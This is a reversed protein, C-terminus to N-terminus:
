LPNPGPLFQSQPNQTILPDVPAKETWKKQRTAEQASYPVIAAGAVNEAAAKRERDTRTHRIRVWAPTLRNKHLLRFGQATLPLTEQVHKANGLGTEHNGINGKRVTESLM